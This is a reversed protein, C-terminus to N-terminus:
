EYSNDGEILQNDNSKTFNRFLLFIENILFDDIRSKVNFDMSIKKIMINNKLLM